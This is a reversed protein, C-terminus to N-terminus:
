NFEYSISYSLFHNIMLYSTIKSINMKQLEFQEIVNTLLGEQDNFLSYHLIFWFIVNLTAEANYIAM